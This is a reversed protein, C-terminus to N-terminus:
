ERKREKERERERERFPQGGNVWKQQINWLSVPSSKRLSQNMTLDQVMHTYRRISNFSALLTNNLSPLIRRKDSM